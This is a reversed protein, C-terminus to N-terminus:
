FDNRKGGESYLYVPDSEGEKKMSVRFQYMKDAKLNEVEFTTVTPDLNTTGPVVAWSGGEVRFELNVATVNKEEIKWTVVIRTGDGVRTTKVKSYFLPSCLFIGDILGFLAHFIPKCCALLDVASHHTTGSYTTGKDTKESPPRM